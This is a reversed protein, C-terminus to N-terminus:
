INSATHLYYKAVAFSLASGWPIVVFSVQEACSVCKFPIPLPCAVRLPSSANLEKVVRRFLNRAPWDCLMRAHFLQQRRCSPLSLSDLQPLPMGIAVSFVTCGPSTVCRTPTSTM